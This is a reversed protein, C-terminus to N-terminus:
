GATMRQLEAALEDLQNYSESIESVRADQTSISSLMEEVAAMNSETTEAIVNIDAASKRYERLVDDAAKQVREAQEKVNEADEYLANMVEAMQRAAQNSEATMQRGLMVQEVAQSTMVRIRELIEGIEKTSEQSTNALKRIEDAVVAFGRGQEGARAAEM